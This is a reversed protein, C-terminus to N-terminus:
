GDEWHVRVAKRLSSEVPPAENGDDFLRKRRERRQQRAERAERNKYENLQEKRQQSRSWAIAATPKFGIGNIGYGDDEPDDPDHGTIESDHWFEDSLEGALPPSKSRSTNEPLIAAVAIAESIAKSPSQPVRKRRPSAPVKLPAPIEDHQQPKAETNPIPYKVVDHDLNGFHSQIELDDFQRAFKSKPSEVHDEPDSDFLLRSIPGKTDLPM